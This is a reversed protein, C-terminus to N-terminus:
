ALFNKRDRGGLFIGIEEGGLFVLFGFCRPPFFSFFFFPSFPSPSQNQRYFQTVTPNARSEYNRIGRQNARAIGTRCFDDWDDLQKLPGNNARSM